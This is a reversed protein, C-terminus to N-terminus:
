RPLRVRYKRCLALIEAFGSWAPEEQVLLEKEAPTLKPELEAFVRKMDAHFKEEKRAQRKAEPTEDVWNKGWGTQTPYEGMKELAAEILAASGPKPVDGSFWRYIQQPSAPIIRALKYPSLDKLISLQFLIRVQPTMKEPDIKIPTASM